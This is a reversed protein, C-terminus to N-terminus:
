VVGERNLDYLGSTRFWGETFTVSTVDATVRGSQHSRALEAVETVINKIVQVYRAVYDRSWGLRDGIEAQTHDERLDGIFDLHDFLDEEAYTHEDKNSAHSLAYVDADEPEVVCPIPKSAPIDELQRLASVRHNGDVVQYSDGNPVVRLPRAPNYEDDDIREAIDEVVHQRIDRLELLELEGLQIYEMQRQPQTATQSM